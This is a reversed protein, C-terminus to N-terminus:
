LRVKVNLFFVKGYTSQSDETFCSAEQVGCEETANNIGCLNAASSGGPRYNFSKCKPLRQICRQGCELLTLV